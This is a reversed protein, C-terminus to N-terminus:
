GTFSNSKIVNLINTAIHAFLEDKSYVHPYSNSGQALFYFFPPPSPYVLTPALGRYQLAHIIRYTKNRKKNLGGKKCPKSDM